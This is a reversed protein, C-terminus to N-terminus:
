LARLVERAARVGEAAGGEMFGRFDVSTHEGAFHLQANSYYSGFFRYTDQAGPPEFRPLNNLHLKFRRTFGRITTMESDILEGCWERIQRDAWYGPFFTHMRGGVRHPDAEYLTAKVGHDHLTLAASLGAIGGGVIAIRTGSTNTRGFGVLWPATVLAGVAGAGRVVVERRTPRLESAAEVPIGLREAERHDSALTQLHRLFPSRRM